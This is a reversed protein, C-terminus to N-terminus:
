FNYTKMKKLFSYDRYEPNWEVTYCYYSYRSNKTWLAIKDREAFNSASPNGDSDSWNKIIGSTGNDYQMGEREYNGIINFISIGKKINNNILNSDGKVTM